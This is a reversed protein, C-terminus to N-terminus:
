LIGDSKLQQRLVAMTAKRVPHRRRGQVRAIAEAQELTLATADVKGTLAGKKKLYAMRSYLQKYTLGPREQVLTMWLEKLCIRVNPDM